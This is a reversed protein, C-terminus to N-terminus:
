ENCYGIIDTGLRSLKAKTTPDNTVDLLILNEAIFLKHEVSETEWFVLQFVAIVFDYAGDHKVVYDITEKMGLYFPCGYKIQEVLMEETLPRVKYKQNEEAIAINGQTAILIAVAFLTQVFKM